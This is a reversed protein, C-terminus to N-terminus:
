VLVDDLVGEVCEWFMGFGCVGEEGSEKMLTLRCALTTFRLM